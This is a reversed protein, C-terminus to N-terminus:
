PPGEPGGNEHRGPGDAIAAAERVGTSKRAHGSEGVASLGEDLTDEHAAAVGDGDGEAMRVALDHPSGLAEVGAEVAAAPRLQREDPAENDQVLGEDDASPVSPEGDNVDVM